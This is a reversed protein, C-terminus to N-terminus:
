PSDGLVDKPPNPSLSRTKLYLQESSAVGGGPTVLKIVVAKISDHRRAYDLMEGIVFAEDEFLGTFPIDIIGIQPRGPAVNFFAFYGLSIGLALALPASVYWRGLTVWVVTLVRM